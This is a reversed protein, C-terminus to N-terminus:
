SGDEVDWEFDASDTNGVNLVERVTIGWDGMDFTFADDWQWFRNSTLALWTDLAAGGNPPSGVNNTLLIEFDDAAGGFGGVSLFNQDFTYAGCNDRVDVTGDNNFRVGVSVAGPNSCFASMPFFSVTVPPVGKVARNM